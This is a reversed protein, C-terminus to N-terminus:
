FDTPNKIRRTGAEKKIKQIDAYDDESDYTVTLTDYPKRETRERKQPKVERRVTKPEEKVPVSPSAARIVSLRKVTDAVAARFQAEFADCEKLIAAAKKLTEDAEGDAKEKIAAGNEKAAALIGEASKQAESLIGNAKEKAADLIRLAEARAADLLKKAENEKKRIEDARSEYADLKIRLGSLQHELESVAVATSEMFGDVEKQSYGAVGKSFKTNKIKESLSM